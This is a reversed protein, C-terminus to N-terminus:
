LENNAIFASNERESNGKNEKVAREDVLVQLENKHYRLVVSEISIFGRFIACEM